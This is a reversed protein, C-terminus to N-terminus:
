GSRLSPDRYKTKAERQEEEVVGRGDATPRLALRYRVTGAEDGDGDFVMGCKEMVRISAPISPFTHAIVSEIRADGRLYDILARAGETAFGQGEFQPLMGYGIECESPNGAKTFAGLSGVLTRSGDPSVLAVYRQWGLQEPHEALQTLMFDYVHPEWNEHPWNSPVVCRILEGLRGEGAQESRLMEHTISILSLRSTVIDDVFRLSM